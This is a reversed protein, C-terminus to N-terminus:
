GDQEEVLKGAGEANDLLKVVKVGEIRRWTGLAKGLKGGDAVGEVCVGLLAGLKRADDPGDFM